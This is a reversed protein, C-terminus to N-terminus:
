DALNFVLTAYDKKTKFSKGDQEGPGDITIGVYCSYSGPGVRPWTAVGREDTSLEVRKGDPGDCKLKAKAVTNGLHYVRLGVADRQLSALIEVRSQPSPADESWDAPDGLLCKAGYQLYFPDGEGLSVVGYDCAGLVARASRVELVARYEGAEDNWKLPLPVEDASAKRYWYHTQKIKPALEADWHGADGFGSRVLWGHDSPDAKIWVFHAQATGALLGVVIWGMLASRLM